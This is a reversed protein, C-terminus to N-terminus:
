YSRRMRLIRLSQGKWGRVTGFFQKTNWIANWLRPSYGGIFALVKKVPSIGSRMLEKLLALHEAKIAEQNLSETKSARARAYTNCFRYAGQAWLEEEGEKKFFDCRMQHARLLDGYRKDTSHTISGQRISRYFTLVQNILVIKKARWYMEYTVGTDEYVMEEPFRIENFLERKYLKNWVITPNSECGGFMLYRCMERPGVRKLEPESLEYPIKDEDLFAFTKCQVIDCDEREMIEALREICEPHIMDDGDVFYILAGDAIALGSNRAASPGGNVRHIVKIREDKQAYQDCIEPCADPSGDDVLIIELNRYTQALVSDVCAKLYPEVNYIPIIVSVKRDNTKM